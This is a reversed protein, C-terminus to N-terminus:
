SDERLEEDIMRKFSEYPQAGSLFRGNIFFSPTGSVGLEMAQAMDADVQSKVEPSSADSGFQDMNLGMEAAWVPYQDPGMAAPDAFIRDHMEWFRGQRHAAEAAAHAGPAKSHMPLPLHKFVVRVQDGYEERVRKVTPWVRSCFPCQFDSWEVVTVPASAPGLVPASGLDIEYRKAPDPRRGRAPASPAPQADGREAVDLTMAALRDTVRYVSQSVAWSAGLVSVAVMISGLLLASGFKDSNM